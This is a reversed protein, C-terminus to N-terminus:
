KQIMMSVVEPHRDDDGPIRLFKLCDGLSFRRRKITREEIGAVRDAFRTLERGLTSNRSVLNGRDYSDRIDSHTDPLVTHVPLGVFREIDQKYLEVRAQMRNVVLHLRQPSYRRSTLMEVIQKTRYFALVDPTTVVFAMDAIDLLSPAFHSFWSGLDVVTWDYETRVFQLLRELRDRNPLVRDTLVAPGSMIDLNQTKKHVIAQFFSHDLRHPNDAADLLSYETDSKTVFRVIGSVLDFDALLVRRNAQLSLEMATHCAITTTGCGGKAGVFAIIQGFHQRSQATQAVHRAVAHRISRLLRKGDSQGKALYEQAGEELARLALAEDDVGSLVVIPTDSVAERVRILPDLGECEELPLDLLVVDFHERRLSALADALRGARALQVQPREGATMAQQILSASGDTGVLLVNILNGRM